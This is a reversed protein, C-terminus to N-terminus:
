KSPTEQSADAAGPAWWTVASDPVGLFEIVDRVDTQRWQGEQFLALVNTGAEPAQPYCMFGLQRGDSARLAFSLCPGLGEEVQQSPTASARRSLDEFPCARAEIFAAERYDGPVWDRKSVPVFQM